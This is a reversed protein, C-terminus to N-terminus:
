EILFRTDVNVGKERRDGPANVSGGGGEGGRGCERRRMGVSKAVLTSKEGVRGGGGGREEAGEGVRERADDESPRRAERGM